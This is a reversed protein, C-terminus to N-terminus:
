AEAAIVINDIQAQTILGLSQLLGLMSLVEPRLPREIFHAEQFRRWGTRIQRKQQATLNPNVEFTAFFEDMLQETESGLQNRFELKTWPIRGQASQSEELERLAFDENLRTARNTMITQPSMGPQLLYPGFQMVRGLDDTHYEIVYRSGDAQTHEDEVYVSQTIVTM